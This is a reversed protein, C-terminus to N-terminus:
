KCIKEYECLKCSQCNKKYLKDKTIISCNDTILKTYTQKLDSNFEIIDNKNDKLNIYIFSLNDYKTLYKDICLLYVMTQFDYISNKPSSGTKYDLIYYNDFDHVIGDIRGGIWYEKIKCFIPFESKYCEKQFYENQQLKLWTEKESPTLTTEIRDIKINQMFYNALAHIKKGKEFPSVSQPMNIKEIYKFYYKKPCTKYTKLMNPSFNNM